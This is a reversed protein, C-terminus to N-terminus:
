YKKYNSILTTIEPTICYLIKNIINKNLNISKNTRTKVSKYDNEFDINVEVKIESISINM